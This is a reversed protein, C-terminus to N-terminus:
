RMARRWSERRRRSMREQMAMAAALMAGRVSELTPPGALEARGPPGAPAGHVPDPALSEVQAKFAGAESGQLSDLREVLARATVYALDAEDAGEYM